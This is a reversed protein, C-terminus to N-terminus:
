LFCFHKLSKALCSTTLSSKLQDVVVLAHKIFLAMELNDGELSILKLQAFRAKFASLLQLIDRFSPTSVAVMANAAKEAEGDAKDKAIRM